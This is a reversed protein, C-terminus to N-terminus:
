FPLVLLAIYTSCNNKFRVLVLFLSVIIELNTANLLERGFGNHLVVYHAPKATGQICSHAQLYFDWGTEMTVARDTIFGPLPNGLRDAFKEDSPYFRTHHRKAVVVLAVPLERGVRTRCANNISVLEKELVADYQSESVGDRYVLIRDPWKGPTKSSWANLRETVMEELWQVIEVGGSQTRLSCPWQGFKGAATNAVVGAISRPEKLRTNSPHSVDIGMVMTNKLPSDALTAGNVEHNEGGLKLNFKM